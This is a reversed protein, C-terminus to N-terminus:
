DEFSLANHLVTENSNTQMLYCFQFHFTKNMVLDMKQSKLYELLIKTESM